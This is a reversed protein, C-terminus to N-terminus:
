GLGVITMTVECPEGRYNASMPLGRLVFWPGVGAALWSALAADFDKVVYGIQRVRGPLPTM